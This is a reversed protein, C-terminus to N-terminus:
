WSTMVVLSVGGCITGNTAPSSTPRAPKKPRIQSPRLDSKPIAHAGFFWGASVEDGEFAPLPDALRRLHLRERGSEALAAKIHDLSPFWAAAVPCFLDAFQQEAAWLLPPACFRLGKEECRSSSVVHILHDSRRQM